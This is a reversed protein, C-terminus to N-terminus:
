KRGELLQLASQREVWEGAGDQVLETLSIQGEDIAMIVGFNQGLYNGKRVRYLNSGAKVLAFTEKGQTLTGQMQIAELPFAELPEKARDREKQVRTSTATPVVAKSDAVEIRSPRFPDVVVAKKNDKDLTTEAEYAVPKYPTIPDLPPVRGRMDRTMKDLEAKLDSHQDGGCAALLAASVAVIAVRMALGALRSDTMQNM